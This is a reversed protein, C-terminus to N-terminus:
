LSKREINECGIHLHYGAKKNDASFKPQTTIRYARLYLGGKSIQWM